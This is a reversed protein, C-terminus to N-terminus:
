FIFASFRVKSNMSNYKESFFSFENENENSCGINKTLIINLTEKSSDKQVINNTPFFSM